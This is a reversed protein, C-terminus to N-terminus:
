RAGKLKPQEGPPLKAIRSLHYRKASRFTEFTFEVADGVAIGQLSVGPALPFPMTMEQMGVVKGDWGVFHPIEEHQIQLQAAAKAPDPLQRVIGRLTYTEDPKQAAATPTASPGEQKRQDCAALLASFCLVALLSATRRTRVNHDPNM